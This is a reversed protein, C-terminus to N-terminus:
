LVASAANRSFLTAPRIYSRLTPVSVHRSTRAIDGEAVGAMAASTVLGARMSHGSCESADLGARAMCRKVVEAVAHGSPGRDLM